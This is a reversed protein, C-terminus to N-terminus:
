DRHTTQNRQNDQRKPAGQGPLGQLLLLAPPGGSGLLALCLSQADELPAVGATLDAPFLEFLPPARQAYGSALALPHMWPNASGQYLNNALRIM